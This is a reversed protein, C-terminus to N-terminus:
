KLSWIVDPEFRSKIFQEVTLLSSPRQAQEDVRTLIERALRQAERKSAEKADAIRENKRVRVIKGHEDLADERYAVYWVNGQQHVHGKQQGRRRAMKIERWPERPPEVRLMGRGESDDPLPNSDLVKM